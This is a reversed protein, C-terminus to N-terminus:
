LPMRNFLPIYHHPSRIYQDIYRAQEGHESTSMELLTPLLYIFASLMNATCRKFFDQRGMLLHVVGFLALGMFLFNTHFLGCTALLLGSILYRAKLFSAVALILFVSSLTSPQLYESDIYSGGVSTTQTLIMM